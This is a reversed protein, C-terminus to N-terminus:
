SDDNYALYTSANCADYVFLRTDFSTGCTSITINAGTGVVSYWIAPGGLAANSSAGTNDGTVTSGCGIAIANICDDNSPPYICSSDDLM